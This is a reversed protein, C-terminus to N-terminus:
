ADLDLVYEAGRFWNEGPKAAVPIASCNRLRYRTETITSSLRALALMQPDAKEAVVITYGSTGGRMISLKEPPPWPGDWLGEYVRGGKADLFVLRDTAESM